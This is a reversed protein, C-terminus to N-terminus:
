QEVAYWYSSKLVLAVRNRLGRKACDKRTERLWVVIRHLANIVQLILARAPRKYQLRYVGAGFLPRVAIHCSWLYQLLPNSVSAAEKLGCRVTLM